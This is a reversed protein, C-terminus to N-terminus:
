VFVGTETYKKHARSYSINQVAKHEAQQKRGISNTRLNEVAHFTGLLVRHRLALGPGM